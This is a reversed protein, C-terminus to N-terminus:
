LKVPISPRVKAHQLIQLSHAVAQQEQASLRAGGFRVRHYDAVLSRLVAVADPEVEQIEASSTWVFRQVALEAIESATAQLPIAIGQRTLIKKFESFFAPERSSAERQSKRRGRWVRRIILLISAVAAPGAIVIGLLLSFRFWPPVQTGATGQESTESARGPGKAVAGSGLSKQLWRQWATVDINAPLMERSRSTLPELATEQRGANLGLVYDRWLYDAYDFIDSIRSAIDEREAEAAQEQSPPTPDLRYWAGSHKGSPKGAIDEPPVESTALLVEVWAHAHSQRVLYYQGVSNWDGGKYGVVLRSPIDQSRLMMALASAFYECHGKRREAVFRELPDVNPTAQDPTMTDGLDLSYQFKGSAFLYNRLAIARVLTSANQLEQSRIVEDAIAKLQPFRTADFQRHQNLEIQFQNHEAYSEGPLYHPIAPLQRGNRIATTGLAYRVERTLNLQEDDSARFLRPNLRREKLWVPTEPLRMVPMVAFLQKPAPGDIVYEQKVYDGDKVAETEHFRAIEDSKFTQRFSWRAGFEDQHYHTLVQGHFYPETALAIARGDKPNIFMARMAPQTSLRINGATKLVIEGSFGSVATHSRGTQWVADSLRPASFFFVTTFVVSALTFILVSRALWPGRVWQELQRKRADSARVQPPDLLRHLSVPSKAPKAELPIEVVTERHYGLLIMSAIAVAMYLTLLLGFQPGMALAAAVVVQLVSLVLLQWHVRRSKVQFVLVVQLYILMHSITLLQAERDKALRMFERFTWAVSVLAALNGLGRPVRIWGYWDTVVLAVLASIGLAYPFLSEDGTLVLFSAGLVALLATTLQLWRHLNM